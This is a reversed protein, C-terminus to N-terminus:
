RVPVRIQAQLGIEVEAYIPLDSGEAVELTVVLAYPVPPLADEAMADARCNVQLKLHAGDSFDAANSGSYCIHQLTGRQIAHYDRDGSDIGVLACESPKAVWVDAGRYGYTSPVTPVFAALTITLRRNDVRSQLIQPWPFRYVHAEGHSLEGVGMVTVRQDTCRFAREPRICGHGLFRSINEKLKVGHVGNRALLADLINEADAGWTATHTLLAKLLVALNSRSRFHGPAALQELEEYIQAALRTTLAAAVSTGRMYRRRAVDVPSSPAAVLAGPPGYGDVVELKLSTASVQSVADRYFQRGGPALVDPKTMSRYGHGLASTPSLLTERTIPDLQNPGATASSADRHASGVTLANIAEGPSLLTRNRRDLYISELIAAELESPDLLRAAGSELNLEIESICNGASVIFLVRYQFAAWDLLRAWPSMKRLFVRKPDGLSVNIVYPRGTTAADRAVLDLVARHFTDLPLKNKPFSELSGRLAPAPVLVPRVTIRRMLKPEETGLDGNLILSAMATGHVRGVAPSLSELGDADDIIVRDALDPHNQMPVGDILGVVAPRSDTVMASAPRVLTV